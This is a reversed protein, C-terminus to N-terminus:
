GDDNCESVRDGVMRLAFHGDAGSRALGPLRLSVVLFVFMYARDCVKDLLQYDQIGGIANMLFLDCFDGVIAILSGAFPWRLSPLATAVRYAVFVAVQWTVTDRGGSLIM